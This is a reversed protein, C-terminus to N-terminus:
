MVGHYLYISIATMLKYLICFNNTDLLLTTGEKGNNSFKKRVYKEKVRKEENSSKTANTKGCNATYL